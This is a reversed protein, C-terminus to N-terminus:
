KKADKAKATVKVVLPQDVTVTQAGVKVKAEVRVAHDGAPTSADATITLKGTAQDKAVAGKGALGKVTTVIALEAPDAYGPLRAIVVDLDAKGGADVALPAAPATLTIPAPAVTLRIPSSYFSAPMEKPAAKATLDKMKATAAAKAADMEKAKKSTAAVAKELDAREPADKKAAALKAEAAKASAAAEAAAKDAEKAAAEASKVVDSPMAKYKVKSLTEAYLTYVGAPVKLAALDLEFTGADAGKDVNLEKVKEFLPHGVLKLPIAGGFEARKTLKLPISVKPNFAYTEVLGGGKTAAITLPCEDASVGVMLERARRSVVEATKSTKDYESTAVTAARAVRTVPGGNVTATGTVRIAAAGADAKDAAALLLAASADGKGIKGPACSVGPPLDDIKLDIEGDFGDRRLAVVKLPAFGGRRLLTTWVPIEKSDKEAAPSAPVVALRFDPAPTRIALRYGIGGGDAPTSFLNRVTLRYTGADKVDLKYSPDRSSTRLEGGGVNLPSEYVEQVDTWAEANTKADKALKQVLLFPAAAAGSRNCFVELWYTSAAPADFTFTHQRHRPHFRGSVECPAALKQGATNSRDTAAPTETVVAPATAMAIRVANSAGAPTDFRYDFGDLLAETSPVHAFAAKDPDGPVTIDVELRELARTGGAVTVDPAPTGGPLNRGYLTFKSKTGAVGSAPLVFDVYPKVHVALRYFFDPGGRYTADYVRLSYEGDAPATFDILDGRRSIVLDRGAADALVASADMKSDIRRAEVEALVRQGSKLPLKYYHVANAEAAGCISQGVTVPTAGAAATNGGKNVLVALTDVVFARPNSVGYRGIARADYTGPAVDGPVTVVFTDAAGAKPKATIKPESFRLERVDDLDVGVVKVEVDAGRTGAMPTLATLRATPLEALAHHSWFLLCFLASSFTQGV